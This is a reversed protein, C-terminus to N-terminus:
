KVADVFDPATVYRIRAEIRLVRAAVPPWSTIPAGRPDVRRREVAQTPTSSATVPAASTAATSSPHHSTRNLKRGRQAGDLRRGVGDGPALQGLADGALLGLRLDAAQGTGEVDHQRADLVGNAWRSAVSCSSRADSLRIRREHRVGRVLQAGRERRHGGVGLEELLPGRRAGVVQSRTMCPMRLSVARM